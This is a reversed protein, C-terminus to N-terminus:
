RGELRASNHIALAAIDAFLSLFDVIYDDFSEAHHSVLFITGIPASRSILPLLLRADTQGHEPGGLTDDRRSDHVAKPTKLKLANQLLKRVAKREWRDGKPSMVLKWDGTPLQYTIFGRDFSVIRELVNILLRDLEGLSEVSMCRKSVQYLVALQRRERELVAMEAQDSEERERGVAMSISAMLRDDEIFASKKGSKELLPDQDSLPKSNV